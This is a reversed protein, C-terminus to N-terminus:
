SRTATSDMQEVPRQLGHSKTQSDVIGRVSSTPTCTLVGKKFTKIHMKILGLLKVRYNFDMRFSDGVMDVKFLTM